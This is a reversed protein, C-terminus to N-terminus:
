DKISGLRKAGSGEKKLTRFAVNKLGQRRNAQRIERSVHKLKCSVRIWEPDKTDVKTTEMDNFYSM